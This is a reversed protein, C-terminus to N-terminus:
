RHADVRVRRPARDDLPAPAIREAPEALRDAAEAFRTPLESDLFERPDLPSREHDIRTRTDISM